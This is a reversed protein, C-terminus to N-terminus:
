LKFDGRNSIIVDIEEKTPEEFKSLLKKMLAEDLYFDSGGNGEEIRKNRRKDNQM